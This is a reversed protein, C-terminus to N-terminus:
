TGPRNKVEYVVVKCTGHRAWATGRGHRTALPKSQTKGMSKCHPRIENVCAMGRGHRARALGRGHRESLSEELGRSLAAHAHCPM